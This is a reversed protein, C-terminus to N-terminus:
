PNACKGSVPVAQKKMSRFCSVYHANDGESDVKVLEPAANACQECALPCRKYFACGSPKPAPKTDEATKEPEAGDLIEQRRTDTGLKPIAALLERTYPHLPADYISEVDALEVIKGKYMVAIRDCLYYVVNLNHSIFLYSLGLRKHLDIMLNLIQSQVSVDLASVPEDAVILKPNLMLACGISIRQRQGGSLERPYRDKYSPSLGILELVENVRTERQAKNGYHHIKLPEELIWGIKKKPNLSSLPDQFVIQVKRSLEKKDKGSFSRGFVPEGDIEIGGQTEVLGVISRGLTSKGCGSEGVLGFIEGKRIEFNIGKLVQIRKGKAFINSSATHYFNTVNNLKLILKNESGKTLKLM